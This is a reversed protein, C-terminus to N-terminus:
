RNVPTCGQEKVDLPVKCRQTVGFDLPLTFNNKEFSYGGLRATIRPMQRADRVGADRPKRRDTGDAHPHM